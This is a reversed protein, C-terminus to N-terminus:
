SSDILSFLKYVWVQVDLVWGLPIIAILQCNSQSPGDKKLYAFNEREM